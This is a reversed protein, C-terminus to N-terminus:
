WVSGTQHSAKAPATLKDTTLNLKEPQYLALWVPTMLRTLTTVANVAAM